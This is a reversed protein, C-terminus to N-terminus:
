IGGAVLAAAAIAAGAAADDHPHFSAHAAAHRAHEHEAAEHLDHLKSDHPHEAKMKESIHLLLANTHHDPHHTHTM